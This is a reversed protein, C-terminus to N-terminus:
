DCPWMIPYGDAFEQPMRCARGTSLKIIAFGTRARALTRGSAEDRIQFRRSLRLRRDNSSVWTAVLATEGPMASSIYDIEHRIVVVGADLRRYSDFDLGLSKSHAWAGDNIWRVYVANNVHGFDDIDADTVKFPTVFPDPHDWEHEAM